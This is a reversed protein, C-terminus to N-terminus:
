NKQGTGPAHLPSIYIIFFRTKLKNRATHMIKAMSGSKRIGAEAPAAFILTSILPASSRQPSLREAAIPPMPSSVIVEM